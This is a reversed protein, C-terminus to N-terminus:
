GGHRSVLPSVLSSCLSLSSCLPPSLSFQPIHILCFLFSTPSLLPFVFSSLSSLCSVFPTKRHTLVLVSYLSTSSVHAHATQRGVSVGILSRQSSCVCVCVVCVCVCSSIEGETFLNQVASRALQESFM